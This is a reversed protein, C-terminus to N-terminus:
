RMRNVSPLRLMRVPPPLNVQTTTEPRSTVPCGQYGPEHKNLILTPLNDMKTLVQGIEEFELLTGTVRKLNVLAINYSVLAASFDYSADALREQAKLVDDLVVGAVQQEGPLLRWRETLYDIEAQDAAMAGQRSAAERYTTSVERVAIEVETRINTATVQLQNTIQRMELRRQQFRELAARNGYPMDFTLGGSYTPRGVSFQDGWAQFVGSNGQLGSVYTGLLANFVPLLENKSINARVGAARLERTAANIEPRYQLALILNDQLCVDYYGHIPVQTPVLEKRCAAMLAPDNVLALLKSEANRVNTSYRIVAADRTAVAARARVIQNGLVDVGKRADLEELIDVAERHLRKRQLLVSRQFYLDWYARHVEILLAQLDKSFQDRAIKADIDALVILSSNYARGAGNLLPQTLSLAMRATGQQTPVFFISNNNEYGFRQSAEFQAGTGTRRRVGMNYNWNQDIFRPAGGTTLTSGVPDSTDVFRSEAYNRPDFRACEETIAATRILPTETLVRVQPSHILTGMIVNDLTMGIPAACRDLPHMVPDQWWPKLVPPIESPRPDCTPDRVAPPTLIPETVSPIREVRPRSRPEQASGPSVIALLVSAAVLLACLRGANSSREGSLKDMSFRTAPRACRRM